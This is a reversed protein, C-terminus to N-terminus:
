EVVEFLGMWGLSAFESKHAHFMYKGTYPFRLELVDRQGQGQILTDTYESPELSTGTPFRQFYNGHIHFSNIPDLEVMNALYIRVLEGRKVQVPEYMFHFAVTNVAYVENDEDFNPDFANQLMVLEDAEPRPEPPDIIFAGYLGKAIHGALPSAHCHYVQLGFPRAEFEYTFEEGVDVLGGGIEEGIGPAGDMVAPHIGHFHITHPHTGANVFHVRMRDGERARLTPGPVRGNYTWAAYKVGPVVEIEKDYAVLEWERLMRGGALRQAKGWDFDRLMVSPDFGNVKPDVRTSGEAFGSHGSGPVLPHHHPPPAAEALPLVGLRAAAGAGAMSAAAALARRRTFSKRLVESKL